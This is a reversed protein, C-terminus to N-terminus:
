GPRGDIRPRSLIPWYGFTFVAFTASWLVGAAIIAYLYAAPAVLPVIVRAIAALEVLVYATIEVGGARLPRGTHGLASRTMMGLTLGGIAGVTLAHMAIGPTAWGLAGCARLALHAVIWAYSAHLIWLLPVRLTKWPSWLALRWAHAVAAIAAVIAVLAPVNAVDAAVLALVSGLAVKELTQNRSAGAGPVGNNTFMPVVRGAVVTMIFLILDAIIAPARAMAIPMWGALASVYALNLLGLVLVLAIFFYNRRNGSAFLPRAIGIAVGIAFVLDSVASLERWPTYALIRGIAWVVALAALPLGTPTPQATWNRVATFLFGAIVAFAYGFFM